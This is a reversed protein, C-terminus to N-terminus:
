NYKYYYKSNRDCPNLSFGENDVIFGLDNEFWDVGKVPAEVGIGKYYDFLNFRYWYWINNKIKPTMMLKKIATKYVYEGRYFGFLAEPNFSFDQFIDYIFEKALYFNSLLTNINDSVAKLVEVELKFNITDLPYGYKKLSSITHLGMKSVNRSIKLRFYKCNYYSVCTYYASLTNLNNTCVNCCRINMRTNDSVIHNSHDATNGLIDKHIFFNGDSNHRCVYGKININYKSKELLYVDEPSLWFEVDKDNRKVFVREVGEIDTYYELDYCGDKGFNKVTKILGM